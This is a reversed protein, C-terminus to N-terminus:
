GEALNLVYFIDSVTSHSLAESPSKKPYPQHKAKLEWINLSITSMRIELGLGLSHTKSLIMQYAVETKPPLTLLATCKPNSSSEPNSCVSYVVMEQPNSTPWKFHFLRYSVQPDQGTGCHWRLPCPSWLLFMFICQPIGLLQPKLIM